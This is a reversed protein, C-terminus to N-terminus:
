KAANRLLRVKRRTGAQISVRCVAEGASTMQHNAPALENLLPHVDRVTLHPTPRTIIRKTRGRNPIVPSFQAPSPTGWHQPFLERRPRGGSEEERCMMSLSSKSRM